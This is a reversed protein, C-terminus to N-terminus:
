FVMHCENSIRLLYTANAIVCEKGENMLQTKVMLINVYLIQEEYNCSNVLAQNNSIRLMKVNLFSMLKKM